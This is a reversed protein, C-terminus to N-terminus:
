KNKTQYTKYDLNKFELIYRRNNATKHSKKQFYKRKIKLFGNNSFEYSENHHQIEFFINLRM